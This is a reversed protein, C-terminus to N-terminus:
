GKESISSHDGAGGADLAALAIRAAEQEAQKKSTGDGDFARGDPLVAQCRFHPAHSPGTASLQRYTPSKVFLAQCRQQLAGKPNDDQEAQKAAEALSPYVDQLIREVCPLGGDLLVAGLFAEFLDGLLSPRHRGGTQAEGHGLLLAEHLGLSVANRANAPEDVLVSRARTLEGEQCDPMELFLRRSIVLQLAADGLFELRENWPCGPRPSEAAYSSHTLAQRLLEPDRFVHGTREQIRRCAGEWEQPSLNFNKM